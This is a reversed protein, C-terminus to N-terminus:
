VKKEQAEIEKIRLYQDIVKQDGSIREIRGTLDKKVFADKKRDPDCIHEDGDAYRYISIGM